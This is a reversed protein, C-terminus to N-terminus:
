SKSSIKMIIKSMEIWFAYYLVAQLNSIVFIYSPL